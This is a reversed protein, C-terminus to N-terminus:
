LNNNGGVLDEGDPAAAVSHFRFRPASPTTGGGVQYGLGPKKKERGGTSGM